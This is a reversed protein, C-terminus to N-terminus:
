IQAEDFLYKDLTSWLLVRKNNYLDCSKSDSNQKRTNETSKNQELGRESNTIHLVKSLLVNKTYRLTYNKLVISRKGRLTNVHKTHNKRYVAIIVRLLM